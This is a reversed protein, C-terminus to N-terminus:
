PAVKQAGQVVRRAERQRYLERAEELREVIKRARDARSIKRYLIAVVM